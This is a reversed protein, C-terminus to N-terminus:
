HDSSHRLATCTCKVAHNLRKAAWTVFVDEAYLYIKAGFGGGVNPAIVRVKHEPLGMVFATMLQREVHPNQPCM